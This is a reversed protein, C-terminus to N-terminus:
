AARAGAEPTEELVRRRGAAALAIADELGEAIATVDDRVESPRVLVREAQRVMSLANRLNREAEVLAWYRERPM